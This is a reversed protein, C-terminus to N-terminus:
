FDVKVSALSKLKQLTEKVKVIDCSVDTIPKGTDGKENLWNSLTEIKEIFIQDSDKLIITPDIWIKGQSKHDAKIRSKLGSVTSTMFVGIAQTAKRRSAKQEKTFKKAEEKTANYLKSNTKNLGLAAWGIFRDYQDQTSTSHNPKDKVITPSLFDLPSYKMDNYLYDYYEQKGKIAQEGKTFAKTALNRAQTFNDNAKITM